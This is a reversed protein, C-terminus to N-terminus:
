DGLLERLASVKRQRERRVRKHSMCVEKEEPTKKSKEEEKMHIYRNAKSGLKGLFSRILPNTQQVSRKSTLTSM